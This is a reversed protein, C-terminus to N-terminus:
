DFLLFETEGKKSLEIALNEKMRSRSTLGSALCLAAM